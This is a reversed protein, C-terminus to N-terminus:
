PRVTVLDKLGNYKAPGIGPVDMIAEITAFPGNAERHSIIQAATSPGIGPLTELEEATATNLNVLGDATIGTGGSTTAQVLLPAATEKEALSPVYIQMGDVLPQALNVVDGYAQSTFGGAQRIVEQAISGPPVMYIGPQSVEGNIYVRLPSATPTPALTPAPHIIIPAPQTRGTLNLGGFTLLAGLLAALGYNALGRGDLVSQNSENEEM